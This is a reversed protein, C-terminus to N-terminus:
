ILNFNFSWVRTRSKVTSVLYVPLPNLLEHFILLSLLNQMAFVGHHDDESATLDKLLVLTQDVDIDRFILFDCHTTVDMALEVIQKIDELNISVGWLSVGIKEIAVEYVAARERHLDNEGEQGPFCGVGLVHKHRSAVVLRLIQVLEIPELAFDFLLIIHLHVVQERLKEAVQRNTVADILFNKDDMSAKKSLISNLKFIDRFKISHSLWCILSDHALAQPWVGSVEISSM